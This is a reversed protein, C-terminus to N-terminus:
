TPISRRPDTEGPLCLWYKLIVRLPPRTFSSVIASQTIEFEWGPTLENITKNIKFYLYLFLITKRKAQFDTSSLVNRPLSVRCFYSNSFWQMHFFVHVVLIVLKCYIELKDYILLQEVKKM